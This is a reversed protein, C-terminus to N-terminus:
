QAPKLLHDAANLFWRCLEGKEAAKDSMMKDISIMKAMREEELQIHHVEVVETQGIRVARGIAQDILAQTWWPSM